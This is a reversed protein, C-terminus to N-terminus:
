RDVAVAREGTIAQLRARAEAHAAQLPPDASSWLRDVWVYHRVAQPARGLQELLQGSRLHTAALYALETPTGNFCHALCRLAEEERGLATLAEARLFRAHEQALYQSSLLPLPIGPDIRDVLALTETPRGQRWAVEARLTLALGAALALTDATAFREIEEAERLAAAPDGLRASLLGVLYRLVAPELAAPLQAEMTHAQWSSAEQLLRSRIAEIRAPELSVFPLTVYLARRMAVRDGGLAASEDLAREVDRWRGEALAIEARLQWAARELSRAPTSEAVTRALADATHTDAFYLALAHAADLVGQSPARRAETLVGTMMASDGRVQALITRRSTPVDGDPFRRRFLADATAHDEERVALDVM